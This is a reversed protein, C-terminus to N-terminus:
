LNKIIKELSAVLANVEEMNSKKWRNFLHSYGRGFHRALNADLLWRKATSLDSTQYGGFCTQKTFNEEDNWFPDNDPLSKIFKYLIIEPPETGPLFSTRKPKRKGVFQEKSDGDLIFGVNKFIRHNSSAMNRLEGESFPGKEINIINKIVSGNLLNKIWLEAPKDECIFDKKNNIPRSSIQNKIKNSVYAYDPNIKNQVKGDKIVLHNIKTEDGLKSELHELIELSHTTFIIQLDLTRAFKFLTDVLKIQSAAYLSADIEDILIIGGNYRTGLQNKLDQFSLLSSLFQGINDQGASNGLHGYAETQMALVDKNRSNISEANIKDDILILIEKSLKSFQNKEPTSLQLTTKNIKDETALPILRKLGLYIIPYNEAPERGDIDTRYRKPSSKTAKVYRTKITRNSVNGNKEIEFSVEYNNKFDNDPCFKFVNKYDETFLKGNKRKVLGKYDCLQAIWGLVSSKGTGNQGSIVTLKEGFEIELGECHRFKKLTLKRLKM